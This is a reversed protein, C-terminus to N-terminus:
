QAWKKESNIRYKCEELFVQPYYKDNRKIISYLTILSFCDYPIKPKSTEKGHFNTEIEGNIIKIRSNIYRKDNEDYLKSDFEKGFLNNIKEWIETYRKFMKKDDAKFSMRKDVKSPLRQDSEFHRVYGIM